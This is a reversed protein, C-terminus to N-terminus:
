RRRLSGHLCSFGLNCLSCAMDIQLV